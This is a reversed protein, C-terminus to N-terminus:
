AVKHDSLDNTKLKAQLYTFFESFSEDLYAHHRIKGVVRQHYHPSFYYELLLDHRLNQLEASSFTPHSLIPRFTTYDEYRVPSPLKGKYSNWLSTGPFPTLFSIRVEDAGLEGLYASLDQYYEDTEFPHGIIFFVKSLLGIEDTWRMLTILYDNISTRRLSKGISPSLTEAGFGVKICGARKLAELM